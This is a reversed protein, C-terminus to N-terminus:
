KLFTVDEDSLDSPPTKQDPTDDHDHDHDHDHAHDHNDEDDHDNPEELDLNGFIANLRAIEEASFEKQAM